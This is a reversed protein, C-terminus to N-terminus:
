LDLLKRMTRFYGTYGLCTRVEKVSTCRKWSRLTEVKEEDVSIGYESVVHGLYQM